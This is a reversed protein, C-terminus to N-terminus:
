QDHPLRPGHVQAIKNELRFNPKNKKDNKDKKNEAVTENM